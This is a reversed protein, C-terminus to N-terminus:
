GRSLGGPIKLAAKTQKAIKKLLCDYGKFGQEKGAQALKTALGYEKQKLYEESWKMLLKYDSEPYKFILDKCALKDLVELCIKKALCLKKLKFNCFGMQILCSAEKESFKHSDTFFKLAKKWQKRRKYEIGINYLLTSDKSNFKYEKLKWKLSKDHKKMDWYLDELSSYADSYKPNRKIATLFDKEAKKYQKLAKYVRGRERYCWALIDGELDKKKRFAINYDKLANKYKKENYFALGRNYFDIGTYANNKLCQLVRRSHNMYGNEPDITQALDYSLLGLKSEKTFKKDAGIYKPNCALSSVVRYMEKRVDQWAVEFTAYIKKRRIWEKKERKENWGRSTIFLRCPAWKGRGLYEEELIIERRTKSSSGWIDLSSGCNDYEMDTNMHECWEVVSKWSNKKDEWLITARQKGKSFTLKVNQTKSDLVYDIHFQKNEHPIM